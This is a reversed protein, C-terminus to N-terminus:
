EFYEKSIEYATTIDQAVRTNGGRDPHWEMMAKLYMAKLERESQATEFKKQWDIKQYPKEAQHPKHQHTKNEHSKDHSTKDQRPGWRRARRAEPDNWFAHNRKTYKHKQQKPPPTPKPKPRKKLGEEYALEDRIAELIGICYEIDREDAESLTQTDVLRLYELSNNIRSYNHSPM